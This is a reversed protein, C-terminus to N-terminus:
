RSDDKLSEKGERFCEHWKFILQRSVKYNMHAATIKVNTQSPMMDQKNLGFCYKAHTEMYVYFSM